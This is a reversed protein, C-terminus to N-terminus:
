RLIEKKQKLVDDESIEWNERRKIRYSAATKTIWLYKALSTINFSQWHIVVVKWHRKWTRNGRCFLEEETIKGANYARWRSCARAYSCWIINAIDYYTYDVWNITVYVNTKRNMAQERRTAWRCNEKCYNWDSDIRDLSTNEVWYIKVFDIYSDYMDDKFEKLSNWLCKIWRWWYNYYSIDNPKECRNKMNAYKRKFALDEQSLKKRCLWHKIREPLSYMCKKCSVQGRDILHYISINIIEWCDCKCIITPYDIWIVELHNYKNGVKVNAYDERKPWRVGM